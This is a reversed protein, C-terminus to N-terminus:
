AQLGVFVIEGEAKDGEKSERSADIKLPRRTEV